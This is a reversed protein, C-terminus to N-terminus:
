RTYAGALWTPINEKSLLKQYVYYCLYLVFTVVEMCLAWPFFELALM